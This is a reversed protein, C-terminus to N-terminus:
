FGPPLDAAEFAKIQKKSNVPYWFGEHYFVKLKLKPLVEYELSGKAPLMALLEKRNFVYWGVSVWHDLVPKEVYSAFGEKEEVIGFDSRPHAVCIASHKMSALADLDINTIDDSNLAFVFASSAKELGLRFAGGTGLLEEEVTYTIPKDPYAKALYNKVQDAGYGLCLVINEVLPHQLFYDLQWALIPKGRAPALCKPGPHEMRTGKGGALMVVDM